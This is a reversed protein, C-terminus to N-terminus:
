WYPLDVFPFVFSVFTKVNFLYIAMPGLTAPHWTHAHRSSAPLLSWSQQEAKLTSYYGAHHRTRIGGGYGQPDYSAVLLPGLAQSYLHAVRNRPPIYICPGSGGPKSLTSESVTFYPWSDRPVWVWSHNRQRPGAAIAFPLGTREDSLAGWMFLGAVTGVTIFIQDYAGSPHKIGLCVPRIVTPWLM